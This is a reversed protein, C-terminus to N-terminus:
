LCYYKVGNAIVCPTTVKAFSGGSWALLYLLNRRNTYVYEAFTAGYGCILGAAPNRTLRYCAGGAALNFLLSGEGAALVISGPRNNPLNQLATAPAAQVPAYGTFVLGLALVAGLIIARLM